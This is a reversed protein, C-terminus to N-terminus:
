EGSAVVFPVERDGVPQHGGVRFQEPGGLPQQDIDPVAFTNRRADAPPLLEGVGATLAHHHFRQGVQHRDALSPTRLGAQLHAAPLVQPDDVARVVGLRAIEVPQPVAIEAPLTRQRQALVRQPQLCHVPQDGTLRQPADM